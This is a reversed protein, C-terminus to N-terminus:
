KATKGRVVWWVSTHAESTTCLHTFALMSFSSCYQKRPSHIILLALVFLLHLLLTWFLSEVSPSRTYCYSLSHLLLLFWHLKMDTQKSLMSHDVRDGKLCSGCKFGKLRWQSYYDIWATREWWWVLTHSRRICRFM